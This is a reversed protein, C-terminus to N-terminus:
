PGGGVLADRTIQSGSVYHLHSPHWHVSRLSYMSPCWSTASPCTVAFKPRPTFACKMLLECSIFCNSNFLHFLKRYTISATFLRLNCTLQLGTVEARALRSEDRSRVDRAIRADSPTWRVNALELDSTYMLTVSRENEGSSTELYM